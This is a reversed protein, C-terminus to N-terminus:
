TILREAEAAVQQAQARESRSRWFRVKGGAGRTRVRKEIREGGGAVVADAACLIRKGYRHSQELRVTKAGPYDRDFALLTARAAAVPRGIAADDNGAATVNGHECLLRLAAGQSFNTEEYEDVLVHRFREAVRARVHPKEHLLRFTHLVLDGSDLAGRAALMADHDAYVRAFEVERGAHTRTADDLASAALREAYGRYEEPTVMEDKLRDIRAVFSALLPAPNGRIEHRRLTLEDIRELMLALRDARTMPIFFPDLGCELAEAHLLRVCFQEFTSVWLEEFPTEISTELRERMAGAATASSTLALVGEPATGESVLWAFRECLVRTKGTGAGGLM